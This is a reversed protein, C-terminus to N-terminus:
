GEQWFSKLLANGQPTLVSEPHFQVGRINNQRHRIAMISDNEWESAIIELEDPLEKESLRWSHYLGVDFTKTIGEFLYDEKTKVAKVQRGHNPQKLHKLKAGYFLGIIQHGLCVGLIAKREAFRALIDFSAPHEEPLGPGPSIVIRDAQKVAQDTVDKESIVQIKEVGICRFAEVLNFTFSDHNDILLVSPLKM